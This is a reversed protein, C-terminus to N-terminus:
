AAVLRRPCSKGVREFDGVGLLRSASYVACGLRLAKPLSCRSWNGHNFRRALEDSLDIRPLSQLLTDLPSLASFRAEEALAELCELSIASAVDPKRCQCPAARGSPCRVRFFQRYGRGAYPYLDGQQVSCALHM